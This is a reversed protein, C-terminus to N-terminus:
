AAFITGNFNAKVYEEIKQTETIMDVFLTDEQEDFGDYSVCVVYYDKEM